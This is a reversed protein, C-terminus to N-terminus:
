DPFSLETLSSRGWIGVDTNETDRHSVTGKKDAKTDKSTIGKGM